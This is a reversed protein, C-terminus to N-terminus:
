DKTKQTAREAEQGAAYALAVLASVEHTIDCCERVGAVLLDGDQYAIGSEYAWKTIQERTPATM